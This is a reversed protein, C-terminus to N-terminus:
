HSQSHGADIGLGHVSSVFDVDLQVRKAIYRRAGNSSGSVGEEPSKNLMVCEARAAM